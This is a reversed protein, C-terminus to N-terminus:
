LRVCCRGWAVADLKRSHRLAEVCGFKLMAVGLLILRVTSSVPMTLNLGCFASVAALVESSRWSFWSTIEVV